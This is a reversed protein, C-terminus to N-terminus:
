VSGEGEAFSIRNLDVGFLVEVFEEFVFVGAEGVSVPVAGGFDFFLDFVVEFDGDAADGKWAVFGGAFAYESVFGAFM